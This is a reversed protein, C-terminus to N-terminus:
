SEWTNKVNDRLNGECCVFQKLKEYLKLLKDFYSEKCILM